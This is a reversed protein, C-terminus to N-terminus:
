SQFYERLNSPFEKYQVDIRAAFNEFITLKMKSQFNAGVSAFILYFIFCCCLFSTKFQSEQRDSCLWVCACTSQTKDTPELQLFYMSKSRSTHQLGQPEERDTNIDIIVGREM